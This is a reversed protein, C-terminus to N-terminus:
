QASYHGRAVSARRGCIGCTRGATKTNRLNVHTRKRARARQAQLQRRYIIGVTACGARQPQQTTRRSVKFPKVKGIALPFRLANEKDHQTSQRQSPPRAKGGRRQSCGGRPFRTPHVENHIGRARMKHPTRDVTTSGLAAGDQTPSEPAALASVEIDPIAQRNYPVKTAKTSLLHNPTSCTCLTQLLCGRIHIHIHTIHTYHSNPASGSPPLWRRM